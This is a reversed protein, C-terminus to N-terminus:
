CLRLGDSAADVAHRMIETVSSGSGGKQLLPVATLNCAIVEVALRFSRRDAEKRARKRLRLDAERDELFATLSKIAARLEASAARRQPDFM